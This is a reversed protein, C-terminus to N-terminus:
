KSEGNVIPIDTYKGGGFNIRLFKANTKKIAEDLAAVCQALDSHMATDIPEM